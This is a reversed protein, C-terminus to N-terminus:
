LKRSGSATMRAKGPAPTPIKSNSNTVPVVRLTGDTMPAIMDIPTAEAFEMKSTVKARSYRRAPCLAKSAAKDAPVVRSRGTNIVAAAIITPMIGIAIPPGPSSCFATSALATMPPTATPVM